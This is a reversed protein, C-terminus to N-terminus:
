FLIDNFSNEQSIRLTGDAYASQLDKRAFGRQEVVKEWCHVWRFCFGCSEDYLIRGERPLTSESEHDAPRM